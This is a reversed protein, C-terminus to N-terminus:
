MVELIVSTNDKFIINFKNAELFYEEVQVEKVDRSICEKLWGFENEFIPVNDLIIGEVEELRSFLIDQGDSMAVIYDNYEGNVNWNDTAIWMAEKITQGLGLKLKVSGLKVKCM